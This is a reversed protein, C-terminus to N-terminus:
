TRCRTSTDTLSAAPRRWTKTSRRCIQTCKLQTARSSSALGEVFSPTGLSPVNRKNLSESRRARPHRWGMRPSSNSRMAPHLRLSTTCLMAGPTAPCRTSESRPCESPWNNIERSRSPWQRSPFQMRRGRTCRYDRRKPIWFKSCTKRAGQMTAMSTRTSFTASKSTMSINIWATWSSKPARLTWWFCLTKEARKCLTPTTTRSCLCQSSASHSRSWKIFIISSLWYELWSARIVLYPPIQDSINTRCFSQCFLRFWFDGLIRIATEVSPQMAPLLPTGPRSPGTASSASTPEAAKASSPPARDM